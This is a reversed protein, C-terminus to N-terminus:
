AHSARGVADPLLCALAAQRGTRGDESRYSYYRETNTVTDDGLVTINASMLGADLLTQSVAAGLDLTSRDADHSAVQQKLGPFAEAFRAAVDASIEFSGPGIYPGIYARLEVPDAGYAEQLAAVVAASIQALTGKWGSHIVAVARQPRRAVVIIPVCDAICILLPVGPTATMLADCDPVTRLGQPEDIRAVTTGHVQFCSVLQDQTASDLGLATMLLRRNAIVTAPEDGVRDGMNLSSYPAASRGGTRESFAIRVGESELDPDTHWVIDKYARRILAPM